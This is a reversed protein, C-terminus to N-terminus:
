KESRVTLARVRVAARDASRDQTARRAPLYCALGAVSALVLGAAALALPDTAPTQYLLSSVTRGLAVTLVLGCTLGAATLRVGGGVLLGLIVRSDAGLALRIGIETTRQQVAHTMVGYVGLSALLLAFVSFATLVDTIFTAQGHSREIWQGMSRVESVPQDKDVARIAHEVAPALALPDGTTRVTLTMASYALQPYPWFATPRSATALNFARMDDVVGVIETTVTPRTMAIAVRKGIPNEHPFYARVFARNVLTVNSKELTERDSFLRGSVLPLGITRFYASDCISVDVSPVQGPPPPPQGEITFTARSSSGSFPVFSVMGVARVGPLQLIGAEVDKFFRVRRGDDGYRAAPVQTRMTLLDAPDFGPSEHRLAQFSRLLLGAGALLVFALAIESVVFWGRARRAHARGGAAGSQPISSDRAGASEFGPALGCVIATLLSVAATFLLVRGNLGVRATSVFGAPNLAVLASLSWRAVLVGVLGGVSALALSESLLQRVIRGRGAGLAARIAMERQRAASRSLLLHAVNACAILLVFSVAGALVYLAQRYPESMEEHLTVVDATWGTDRDPFERALDAAIATMEAQAQSLLVGPRLRAIVTLGRSFIDRAGAALVYPAWLDAPRGAGASARMYLGFGQPMVGVVTTPTANLQIVRGVVAPDGGFRRRWLDFGLMAVHAQPDRSESDTFTRGVLPTVGLTSFFPSTVRQLVVEEPEVSGTLNARVEVFSAFTGFARVREQWRLFNASSVVNHQGPRQASEEWIAVVRDPDPVPPREILFANVLTFVSTTAGIGLALTLVVVATFGPSRGFGRVAYRLDWMLEDLRLFSRADRQRDKM